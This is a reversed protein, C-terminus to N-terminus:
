CWGNQKAIEKQHMKEIQKKNENNLINYNPHYAFYPGLWGEEHTFAMSWSMNFPFVYYDTLNCSSPRQKTLISLEGDNGMVVYESETKSEYEKHAEDAELSPFGKGSFIHWKYARTNFGQKNKCFIKMWKKEIELTEKQTFIKIISEPKCEIVSKMATNQQRVNALRGYSSIL